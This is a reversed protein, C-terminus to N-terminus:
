TWALWLAGNVSIANVQMAKSAETEVTQRRLTLMEPVARVLPLTM